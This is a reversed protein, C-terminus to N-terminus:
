FDQERSPTLWELGSGEFHNIEMAPDERSSKECQPFRNGEKTKTRHCLKAYCISREKEKKQLSM